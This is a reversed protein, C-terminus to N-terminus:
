KGTSPISYGKAKLHERLREGLQQGLVFGAKYSGRQIRPLRESWKRGVPSSFFKILDRIEGPTFHQAYLPSLLEALKDPTFEGKVEITLERWVTEPVQPMNKRYAEMVRDITVSESQPNGPTEGQLDLLKRIEKAESPTVVIGVVDEPQTRDIPKTQQASCRLLHLRILGSTRVM